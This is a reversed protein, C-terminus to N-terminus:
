DSAAAHICLLQRVRICAYYGLTYHVNEGAVVTQIHVLSAPHYGSANSNRYAYYAVPVLLRKSANLVNSFMKEWFLCAKNESKISCPSPRSVLLLRHM